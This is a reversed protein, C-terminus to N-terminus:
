ILYMDLTLILQSLTRFHSEVKVSTGVEELKQLLILDAPHSFSDQRASKSPSVQLQSLYFFMFYLGFSLLPLSIM